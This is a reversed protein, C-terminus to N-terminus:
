SRAAGAPAVSASTARVREDVLAWAASCSAFSAEMLWCISCFCASDWDIV